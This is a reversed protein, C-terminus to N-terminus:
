KGACSNMGVTNNIMSKPFVTEGGEAHTLYVLATKVRQGGFKEVDNGFFREDRDYYDVHRTYKESPGYQMIQWPELNEANGSNTFSPVRFSLQFAVALGPLLWPHQLGWAEHALQLFHTCFFVFRIKGRYVQGMDEIGTCLVSQLRSVKGPPVKAVHAIRHTIMSLVEDGFSDFFAGHSTRSKSRIHKMENSNVLMAPEMQPKSLKLLYDCEENSLFNDFVIAM